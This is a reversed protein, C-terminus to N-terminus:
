RKGYNTSLSPQHHSLYSSRRAALRQNSETDTHTYPTTDSDSRKFHDLWSESLFSLMKGYVAGPLFSDGYVCCNILFLASILYCCGEWASLWEQPIWWNLPPPWYNLKQIINIKYRIRFNKILDTFTRLLVLRDNSNSKWDSNGSAQGLRHSPPLYDIDSWVGDYKGYKGRSDGPLPSAWRTVNVLDPEVKYDREQEQCYVLCHRGNRTYNNMRVQM